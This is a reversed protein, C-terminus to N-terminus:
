IMRILCQLPKKKEGLHFSHFMHGSELLSFKLLGHWPLMADCHSHRGSGAKASSRNLNFRTKHAQLHFRKLTEHCLDYM